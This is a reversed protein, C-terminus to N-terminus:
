FGKSWNKNKHVGLTFPRGELIPENGGSRILEAASMKRRKLDAKTPKYNKKM